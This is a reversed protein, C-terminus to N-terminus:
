ASSMWLCEGSERMARSATQATPESSIRKSSQPSSMTIEAVWFPRPTGGPRETTMAESRAMLVRSDRLAGM